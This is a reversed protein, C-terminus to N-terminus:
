IVSRPLVIATFRPCRTGTETLFLHAAEACLGSLDRSNGVSRWEDVILGDPGVFAGSTIASYKKNLDEIIDRFTM